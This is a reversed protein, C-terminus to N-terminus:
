RQFKSAKERSFPEASAGSSPKGSEVTVTKEEKRSFREVSVGSSPKEPVVTVTMESAASSTPVIRVAPSIPQEGRRRSEEEEGCKDTNHHRIICLLIGCLMVVIIPTIVVPEKCLWELEKLKVEYWNLQLEKADKYDGLEQFIANAREINQSTGWGYLLCRARTYKAEKLGSYPLLSYAKVLGHAELLTKAANSLYDPLLSYGKKWDQAVGKGYLYCKSLETKAKDLGNEAAETYLAFAEQANKETGRGYMYCDALRYQAEAFGQEASKKLWSVAKQPNKGVKYWGYLYCKGLKCQAGADNPEVTGYGLDLGYLLVRWERTGEIGINYEDYIADLANQAAINGKKAARDYWNVAEQLDIGVGRGFRYCNGLAYQAAIFDQEAAKQYCRFAEALDREVGEGNEYRVGLKYQEVATLETGTGAAALLENVTVAYAVASGLLCALTLLIITLKKM